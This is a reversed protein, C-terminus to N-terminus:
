AGGERAAARWRLSRENLPGLAARGELVDRGLAVARRLVPEPAHRYAPRGAVHDYWVGGCAADLLIRQFCHDHRVPWDPRRAAPMARRTLDLWEAELAARGADM